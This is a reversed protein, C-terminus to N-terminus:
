KIKCRYHVQNWTIPDMESYVMANESEEFVPRYVNTDFNPTTKVPSFIIKVYPGVAQITILWYWSFDM